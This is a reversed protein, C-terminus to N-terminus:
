DNQKENASQIWRIEFDINIILASKPYTQDIGESAM